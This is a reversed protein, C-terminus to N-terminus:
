AKRGLLSELVLASVALLLFLAYIERGQKERQLNAAFNVATQVVRAVGLYGEDLVRPNLNSERTNVNVAARAIAVTQREDGSFAGEAQGPSRLSIGKAKMEAM